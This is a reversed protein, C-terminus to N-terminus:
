PLPWLPFRPWAPRASCSSPAPVWTPAYLPYASLPDHGFLFGLPRRALPEPQGGLPAHPASLGVLTVDQGLLMGLPFPSQPVPRQDRRRVLPPNPAHQQRSSRVMGLTFLLTGRRLRLFFIMRRALPARPPFLLPPEPRQHIGPDVRRRAQVLQRVVPEHGTELPRAHLDVALHQGIEGHAVRDREPLERLDRSLAGSPWPRRIVLRESSCASRSTSRATARTAVASEEVRAERRVSSRPRLAPFSVCTRRESADSEGSWRRSRPARALWSLCCSSCAM